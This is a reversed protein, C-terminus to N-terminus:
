HVTIVAASGAPLNINFSKAGVTYAQAPAPTFTGDANVANGAFTIQSTSTMDPASLRAISVSSATNSLHIAFSIGNTLEKNILTIHTIGANVCAYVNCNYLSSSIRAPIITSHAAGYTFALMAYYEPRPIPIGNQLVIPSYAGGTSGHFNIGQGNNEAVTWMFDLAWLASAFVDSVGARGGSYINNCESIRYPLKSRLAANNLSQLYVPLKTDPTLLTRYTISADSGPGTKYYHADLMNTHQSENEAFSNMWATNFALDPGAFAATYGANRIGTFYTSWENQFNAYSYGPTRHGNNYFLDAENGIQLAILNDQFSSAAYAAESAAARSTGTGLNLGFLVPWHIAKAFARVTDIDSTTLSDSGTKSTRAGGTWKVVDSSNGGIRLVGSGLNHILQLLVTNSSSLYKPTKSLIATEFSLGSFAPAIVYGPQNQDITVEVPQGEAVPLDWILLNRQKHCGSQAAAMFLMGAIMLIYASNKIPFTQRKMRM